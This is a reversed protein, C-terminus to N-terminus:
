SSPQGGTIKRRIAPLLLNVACIKLAWKKLGAPSGTHFFILAAMNDMFITNGDIKTIVREYHLDYEKPRWQKTGGREEIADMKLDKIWTDTGPRFLIIKDGAKFGAASEVHFSTAGTPVYADTIAVRGPLEEVNGTGTINILSRQTNGTAILRTDQEGDGEGRLVIGSTTITLTGPINYVGKKLLIAGRFGNKDPTRRAVEDIAAQIISQSNEANASITKVVPVNPLPRDGQYYGVRSFDPLINGKEDPHYQITGNSALTIFKSEWKDAPRQFAFAFIIIAAVIQQRISITM